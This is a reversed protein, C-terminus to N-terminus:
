LLEFINCRLPSPCFDAPVIRDYFMYRYCDEFMSYYHVETPLDHFEESAYTRLFETFNADLTAITDASLLSSLQHKFPAESQPKHIKALFAPRRGTIKDVDKWKRLHVMFNEDESITTTKWAGVNFGPWHLWMTEIRSPRAVTKQTAWEDLILSSSLLRGLSFGDPSASTSFVTNYRPFLFGSANPSQQAFYLFEDLYNNRFRPFLIEDVDHFMIFDAANKFNILCDTHAGAQNRWDMELHPDYPIGYESGNLPVLYWPETRAFGQKAYIQLYNMIATLASEVYFVQMSVGFQRYVEVLAALVQWRENYFVPAFCAVVPLKRSVAERFPTKLVKDGVRDTLGFDTPRNASFCTAVFATWRCRRNRDKIVPKISAKTVVTQLSNKSWCYVSKKFQKEATFLMVMTNNPYSESTMFYTSSVVALHDVQKRRKVEM